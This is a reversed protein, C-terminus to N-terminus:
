RTGAATLGGAQAGIAPAPQPWAPRGSTPAGPHPQMPPHGAFSQPNLAAPAQPSAPEYRAQPGLPLQGRRPTVPGWSRSDNTPASFSAPQSSAPQPAVTPPAANQQPMQGPMLYMVQGNSAAAAQKTSREEAAAATLRQTLSNPLSISMTQMQPATAPQMASQSGMAAPLMGPPAGLYNATETLGHTTPSAPPGSISPAFTAPQVQEDRIVSTVTSNEVKTNASPTNPGPLTNRSTQGVVIHGATSTFIPVLSIETQDGGVEDWGVWVSYSAGLETPSYHATFQKPTFTFKRDPTVHKERPASDNYGYVILQGEVPVAEDKANYFYIRGGFGRETKTNPANQIAPSWLVVMRTPAQYKTEKVRDEFRTVTWDSWTPMKMTQCGAANLLLLLLVLTPCYKAYTM